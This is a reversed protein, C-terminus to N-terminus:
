RSAGAAPRVFIRLFVSPTLSAQRGGEVQGGPGTLPVGRPSAQSGALGEHKGGRPM